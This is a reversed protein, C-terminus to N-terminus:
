SRVARARMRRALLERKRKRWSRKLGRWKLWLRHTFQARLKDADVCLRDFGDSSLSEIERLSLKNLLAEVERSRSWYHNLCESAAIKRYERCAASFGYQEAYEIKKPCALQIADSVRLAEACVGRVDPKRLGVVGAIWMEAPVGSAAEYAQLWDRPFQPDLRDFLATNVDGVSPPVRHVYVDADLYTMEDFAMTEDIYQVLKIKLRHHFWLPGQWEKVRKADAPIARCGPPLVEPADTFVAIDVAPVGARILSTVALHAMKHFGVSGYAQLVFQRM